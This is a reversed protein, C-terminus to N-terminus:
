GRIMGLGGFLFFFLFFLAVGQLIWCSYGDNRGHHRKEALKFHLNPSKWGNGIYLNPEDDLQYGVAGDPEGKGERISHGSQPHFFGMGLKRTRPHDELYSGYFHYIHRCNIMSFAGNMYASVLKISGLIVKIYTFIDNGYQSTWLIWPDNWVSPLQYDTVVM